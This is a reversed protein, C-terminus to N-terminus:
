ARRGGKLSDQLAKLEDLKGDAALQAQEAWSAPDALRLGATKLTAELTALDTVALQAFTNIGTDQLVSAIKPGIGEILTLDDFKTKKAILTSEDVPEAAPASEVAPVAAVAPTAVVPRSEIIPAAVPTAPQEGGKSLGLWRWLLAFLFIVLVILVFWIWWPMGAQQEQYSFAPLVSEFSIYKISSLM